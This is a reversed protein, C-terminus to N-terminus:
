RLVVLYDAQNPNLLFHALCVVSLLLVVIGPGVPSLLHIGEHIVRVDGPNPFYPNARAAPATRADNMLQVALKFSHHAGASIDSTWQLVLFQRSCHLQESFVKNPLWGLRQAKMWDRNAMLSTGLTDQHMVGSAHVEGGALVTVLPGPVV